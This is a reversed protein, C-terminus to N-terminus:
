FWVALGRCHGCAECKSANLPVLGECYECVYCFRTLWKDQRWAACSECKPVDHGYQNGCHACEWREPKDDIFHPAGGYYKYSVGGDVYYPSNM